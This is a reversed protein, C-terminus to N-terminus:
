RRSACCGCKIMDESCGVVANTDVGSYQLGGFLLRRSRRGGVVGNSTTYVHCVYDCNIGGAVTSTIGHDDFGPTADQIEDLGFSGKFAQIIPVEWDHSGPAGPTPPPPPPSASAPPPAPAGLVTFFTKCSGGACAEGAKAVTVEYVGAAMDPSVYFTFVGDDATASSSYVPAGDKTIKLDVTAGMWYSQWTIPVYTGPAFMNERVPSLMDIVGVIDFEGSEGFTSDCIQEEPDSSFGCVRITYKDGPVLGQYHHFWTTSSMM